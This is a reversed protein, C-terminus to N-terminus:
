PFPTQHGLCERFTVQREWCDAHYQRFDPIVTTLPADLDLRGAAAHALIRPTTFMVKTLSALDFWTGRDLSRETPVRQARGAARVVREGDRTVLGLVAGPIRGADLLATVP